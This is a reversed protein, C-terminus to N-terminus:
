QNLLITMAYLFPGGIAAALLIGLFTYVASAATSKEATHASHEM